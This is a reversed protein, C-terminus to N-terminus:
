LFFDASVFLRLEEGDPWRSRDPFQHVTFPPRYLIRGTAGASPRGPQPFDVTDVQWRPGDARMLNVTMPQADLFFETAPGGVVCDLSHCLELSRLTREARRPPDPQWDEDDFTSLRTWDIHPGQLPVYRSRHDVRVTVWVRRADPLRGFIAYYARVIRDLVYGTVNTAAASAEALSWGTFGRQDGFDRNAIADAVAPPTDQDVLADLPVLRRASLQLQASARNPNEAQVTLPVVLTPPALSDPDVLRSLPLQWEPLATM